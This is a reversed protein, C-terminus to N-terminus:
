QCKGIIPTDAIHSMWRFALFMFKVILVRWKSKPLRLSDALENGMFARAIEAHVDFGFFTPPRNTISWLVHKTMQISVDDPEVLHLVISEIMAHSLAFSKCPNKDEDVGILYAIYRWLHTYDDMEQKTPHVGVIDMSYLVNFQFSLITACMDEQNIPIGWSPTDWQPYKSLWSRVKTHLFRVRLTSIWGRGTLPNLAGPELCDYIMQSTEWLRRYTNENSLYGTATLVKNIKPAGFGGALSLYLLAFGSISGYKHFVYQGRAISDWDVWSPVTTIQTYLDDCAKSQSSRSLIRELLDDGAGPKLEAVVSDALPDGILRWPELEKGKMHQDTWKMTVGLKLVLDGVSVDPDLEDVGWSKRPISSDYHPYFPTARQKDAIPLLM